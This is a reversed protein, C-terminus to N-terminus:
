QIDKKEKKRLPCDRSLIEKMIETQTEIAAVIKETGAKEMLRGESFPDQGSGCFANM